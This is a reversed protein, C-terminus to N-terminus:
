MRHISIKLNVEVLDETECFCTVQLWVQNHWVKKNDFM